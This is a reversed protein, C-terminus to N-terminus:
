DRAMDLSGIEIYSYGTPSSPANEVTGTTLPAPSLSGSSAPPGAIVSWCHSGTSLYCGAHAGLTDLGTSVEWYLCPPQKM